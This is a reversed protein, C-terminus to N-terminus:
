ARPPASELTRPLTLACPRSMRAPPRTAGSRAARGCSASRRRARARRARRGSRARRSRRARRDGVVPPPGLSGDSPRSTSGLASSFQTRGAPRSPCTSANPISSSGPSARGRSYASRARVASQISAARRRRRGRAGTSSPRSARRARAAPSRRRSRPRCRRSRARSRAHARSRASPRAARPPRASGRSRWRRSAGDPSRSRGRTSTAARPPASRAVGHERREALAREVGAGPGRTRVRRARRRRPRPARAARAAGHVSTAPRDARRPRARPVAATGAVRAAHELPRVVARDRADRSSIGAPARCTRTSSTSRSPLFAHVFGKHSQAAAPGPARPARRLAGNSRSTMPPPITPAPSRRRPPARRARPRARRAPRSRRRSTSRARRLEDVAAQAVQAEAVDAEHALRVLLPAGQHVDDRRVEDPPEREQQREVAVARVPREDHLGPM